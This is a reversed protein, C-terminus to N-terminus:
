YMGECCAIAAILMSIRATLWKIMLGLEIRLRYFEEQVRDKTLMSAIGQRVNDDALYPPLEAPDTPMTDVMWMHHNADLDFLKALDLAEPISHQPFNLSTAHDKAKQVLDNYKKAMQKIGPTRKALSTETHKSLKIDIYYLLIHARHM